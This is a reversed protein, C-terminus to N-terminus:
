QTCRYVGDQYSYKWMFRSFDSFENVNCFEGVGYISEVFRHITHPDRQGPVNGLDSLAKYGVGIPIFDSNNHLVNFMKELMDNGNALKISNSRDMLVYGMPLDNIDQVQRVDKFGFIVGGAIRLKIFLKKIQQCLQKTTIEDVTDVEIVLSVILDMYAQNMFHQNLEKEHPGPISSPLPLTLIHNVKKGNKKEVSKLEYEHLIIGTSNIKCIEETANLKRELAHTSGLFGTIAPFGVVINNWANVNQVDIKEIVIYSKM